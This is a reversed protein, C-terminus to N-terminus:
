DWLQPQGHDPAASGSTDAVERPKEKAKTPKEVENLNSAAVLWPLDFEQQSAVPKTIIRMWSPAKFRVLMWYLGLYLGVSM